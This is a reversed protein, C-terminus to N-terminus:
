GLDRGVEQGDLNSNFSDSFMSMALMMGSIGKRINVNVPINVYTDTTSGINNPGGIRVTGSVLTGTAAESGGGSIRRSIFAKIARQTPVVNNSDAAFTVDTSFERIVVGTGGVRIGGLRLESLGGLDFYDASITVVGTAQEVAFLEGVRFNGDQDTSTYFVRGGGRNYVENEPARSLTGQTYLEPYNTQEFNGTGIDLFDHGTLRVQSYKERIEIPTNHPPSTTRNFDPGVRIALRYNGPAGSIVDVTLVRYVRNDSGDSAVAADNDALVLYKNLGAVAATPNSIPLDRELWDLGLRSSYTASGTGSFLVFKRNAFIIHSWDDTAPAALINWTNGDDESVTFEDSNKAIIILHDNGYAIDSWELSATVTRIVWTQGDLSIAIKDTNEAIAIFNNAGHKVKVWDASVPLSSTLWTNGNDVSYIADASGNSVATWRDNIFDISIWNGTPVTITTWTIGDTSRAFITGYAVAFYVGNAYKIDRWDRQVPITTSTWGTGNASYVIQSLGAGQYTIGVFKDAGVTVGGWPGSIPLVSPTWSITNLEFNAGTRVVRPVGDVILNGGLEYIDAYGDGTVTVRTTSTKYGVGRNLFTPNGLVGNGIRFEYNPQSTAAPDVFTFTPQADYGSGPEWIKIGGIRGGTITPRGRFTAGYQFTDVNGSTSSLVVWRGRSSTNPVFVAVNRGYSGGDLTKLEWAFGGSDSVAVFETSGASVAVFLGQAYSIRSWEIDFPLTSLYWTAGDFSYAVANSNTSIAVFRNNGYCMDIWEPQTSDGFAPIATGEVWTVGDTSTITEGTTAIAVFKNKGYAVATWPATTPTSVTAWTASSVTYVALTTSSSPATAVFKGGGGAINTCNSIGINSELSSYTFASGAWTGVIASTGTTVAAVTDEGDWAIATYFDTNSTASSISLNTEDSGQYIVGASSDGTRGVALLTDFTPVYIADTFYRISEAVSDSTFTPAATLPRPEIRYVTTTDLLSPLPYGAIVHTWGLEGNYENYVDIRKSVIDHSGVIGYQGTGTGSTIIIRCGIYDTELAEDNAAITIGTTNGGQANNGVSQFGGGGLFENPAPDLLRWEYVGGDRFEDAIVSAGVGSGVFSITAETYNEGANAFELNLIEDNAEGSFATVVSAQTTRNNLFGEAPTETEDVGEAVCGYTGYSSNGNTARIKGGNEALYGMHGYYSFISVLESLGNNTVWAGIGDSLVQTFDNAVISKNGGGHLAGDVKLGVCGTGFTTVNQVYCSKTTIWVSSDTPGNGPDLSVYAGATPRRTGYQNIGSLTGTLGRFTMNRLGSGNNVHFMDSLRYDLPDVFPLGNVDLSINNPNYLPEVVTSRLEEGVIAVDRPVRIPLIESYVGAKVFITAPGTAFNCAYRITRFASNLSTGNDPADIGETSVYYVKQTQNFTEWSPADDVVRLTQGVIGIPLRSQDVSSGDETVGFVKIDGQYRLSNTPEGLVLLTWLNNDYDNDPRQNINTAIHKTLCRYTNEEFVVVDGISYTQNLEWEKRYKEGPIVLEWDTGGEDNPDTTTDKIAVYLQGNKRVLEGVFYTTNGEWEGSVKYGVTLLKWFAISSDDNLAASTSPIQGVNNNLAEYSYGGYKVVDGRQYITTTEWENEYEFGPVYLQWKSLDFNTSSTNYEVCIWQNAGYKVIDNRKYRVGPSPPDLVEPVWDGKYEINEFVIEWDSQNLELGEGATTASTHGDICRYVIGGYKVIDNARYRVGTAWAQRWQQAPNVIEWDAFNGELGTATDSSINRSVCRYVIGNYKVVDRESYITSPQWDGKWDDSRAYSVWHSQDGELGIDFTNSTHSSICIYSIAKYKVIDGVNYVTFPTWDGRWEYGDFMLEWRPESSAPITQQNIFNLDEYFGITSSTHRTICVYSKGGFRVVDDVIYNINSDWNGKWTFKLRSLKFEAM